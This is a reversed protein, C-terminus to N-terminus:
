CGGDGTASAVRHAPDLNDQACAASKESKGLATSQKKALAELEAIVKAKQEPTLLKSNPQAPVQNLNTAAPAIADPQEASTVHTAPPAIAMPAKTRATGAPITTEDTLVAPRALGAAQPDGPSPYATATTSPSTSRAFESM